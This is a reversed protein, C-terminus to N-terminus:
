KNRILELQRNIAAADGGMDLARRLDAVAQDPRKQQHHLLGRHFYASAHNPDIKIARDFDKEARHPQKLAVEALGRHFYIEAPPFPLRGLCFTYENVADHFQKQRYHCLGQFFHPFFQMPEIDIAQQLHRSAEEPKGARFWYRGLAFHEWFSKPEHKNVHQELRRVLDQKGLARAHELQEHDLVINPGFHKEMEALKNLAEERARNKQDTAARGVRFDSWLIALDQSSARVDQTLQPLAEAAEETLLRSRDKWADAFVDDFKQLDGRPLSEPVSLFHLMLDANHLKQYCVGLDAQRLQRDITQRLGGSAPLGEALRKAELLSNAALHFDLRNMQESADQLLQEAAQRNAAFHSQVALGIAALVLVAVASWALRPLARPHRRQWRAWRERRSRRPAASLSPDDLRRSLDEILAATDPYRRAPDADVCRQLVDALAPSVQADDDPLRLPDPNGDPGGPAGLARCLLHGLAQVAGAPTSPAAQEAPAEAEPQNDM